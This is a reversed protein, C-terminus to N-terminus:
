LGTIPQMVYSANDKAAVYKNNFLRKYELQAGGFNILLGVPFNYAALYNM